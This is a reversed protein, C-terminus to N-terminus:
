GGTFATNKQVLEGDKYSFANVKELWPLDLESYFTKALFPQNYIYSSLYEAAIPHAWNSRNLM